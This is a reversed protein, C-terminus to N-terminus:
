DEPRLDEREEIWFRQITELIKENCPHGPEEHFGHLAMVLRKLEVFGTRMPDKDPHHEALLEGIYEVDLWNFSDNASPM